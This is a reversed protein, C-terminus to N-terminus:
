NAFPCQPPPACRLARADRRRGCRVKDAAAAKKPAEPAAVASPRAARAARSRGVFAPRALIAAASRPQRQVRAGLPPATLALAAQM